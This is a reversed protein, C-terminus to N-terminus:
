VIRGTAINRVMVHTNFKNRRNCAVEVSHGLCYERVISCGDAAIWSLLVQADKACDIFNCDYPDEVIPERYGTADMTEQFIDPMPDIIGDGRLLANFLAAAVKELSGHMLLDAYHRAFWGDGGVERHYAHHPKTGHDTWVRSHHGQILQGCTVCSPYVDEPDATCIRGAADVYQELSSSWNCQKSGQSHVHYRRPSPKIDMYGNSM